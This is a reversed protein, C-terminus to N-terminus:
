SFSFKFKEGVVDVKMVITMAVIEALIADLSLQIVSDQLVGASDLEVPLLSTRMIVPTLGSTMWQLVVRYRASKNTLPM